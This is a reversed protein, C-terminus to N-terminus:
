LPSLLKLFDKFLIKWYEPVKHFKCLEQPGKRLNYLSHLNLLKLLLLAEETPYSSGATCLVKTICNEHMIMETPNSNKM